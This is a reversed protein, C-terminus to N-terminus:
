SGSAPLVTAVMARNADGIVPLGIANCHVWVGIPDRTKWTGAVIGPQEEPQLGYEPEDSELTQGWYTAGMGNNGGNPDSPAPLLFLKEPSLIPRKIVGQGDGNDFVAHREYIDFPPLDNQMMVENIAARNVQSPRGVLTSYLNRMEATRALNLLMNRNGLFSGPNENNLDQYEQQWTLLDALPTANAPDDWLVDAEVEMSPDREWDAMQIFGNENIDLTATEIAQGRGVELRNNVDRVIQRTIDLVANLIATNAVNGRMRLQDYESVRLKEGIPPLEIIVRQRGPLKGLPTEADYSRYPAVPQLGAKGVEFRAVIDPVQENPLYRALTGWQREYAEQEQRAYGTLEAPTILDTWLVNEVTFSM